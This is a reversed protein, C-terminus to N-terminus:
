ELRIDASVYFHVLMVSLRGESHSRGLFQVECMTDSVQNQCVHRHRYNRLVMCVIKNVVFRTLQMLKFIAVKLVAKKLCATSVYVSM